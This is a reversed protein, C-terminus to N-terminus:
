SCHSAKCAGGSDSVRVCRGSFNPMDSRYSNYVWGNADNWCGSKTCYNTTIQFQIDIFIYVAILLIIGMLTGFASENNNM